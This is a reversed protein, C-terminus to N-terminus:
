GYIWVSVGVAFLNYYRDVADNTIRVCGHSNPYPPVEGGDTGNGEGHIAYGTYNFYSPRYLTGLSSHVTGERKYTFHFHGRPTVAREQQGASDTYYYGGATSTDLIRWIHGHKAIIVVQRALDVEVSVADGLPHRLHPVRPHALKAQVRQGAAGDRTLHQVKEFATVAHETDLGYSGNVPGVDYHLHRLRKQLARVDTGSDGVSLDRSIAHATLTRSTAAGHSADSHRLVRYHYTGVRAVTISTTFSGHHATPHAVSHWHGHGVKRQVAVPGSLKPLVQGTLSSAAHTRLTSSLSVHLRPRVGLVHSPSVAGRRSRSPAFKVRLAVRQGPAVSWSVVGQSSTRKVSTGRLTRWTHSGHVRRQLRARQHGLHKGTALSYVGRVTVPHPYTVSRRSVTESATTAQQVTFTPGTV